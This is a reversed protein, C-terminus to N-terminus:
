KVVSLVDKVTIKWLMEIEKLRRNHKVKIYCDISAITTNDHSKYEDDAYLYNTWFEQRQFEKVLINPHGLIKDLNELSDEVTFHIHKIKYM